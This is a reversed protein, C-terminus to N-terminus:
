QWTVSLFGDLQVDSLKMALATCTLPNVRVAWNTPRVPSRFVFVTLTIERQTESKTRGHM